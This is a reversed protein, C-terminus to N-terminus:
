GLEVYICSMKGLRRLQIECSCKGARRLNARHGRENRVPLSIGGYRKEGARDSAGRRVYVPVDDPNRKGDGKGGIDPRRYGYLVRADSRRGDKIFINIFVLHGDFLHNIIDAAAKSIIGQIRKGGDAFRVRRKIRRPILALIFFEKRIQVKQFSFPEKETKETFRRCREESSNICSVSPRRHSM